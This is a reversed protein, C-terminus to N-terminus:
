PKMDATVACAGAAPSSVGGGPHRPKPQPTAGRDRGAPAPPRAERGISILATRSPAEPVDTQTETMTVNVNM